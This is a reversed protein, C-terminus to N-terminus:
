PKLTIPVQLVHVPSGDKASKEYVWLCAPTSQTVTFPATVEYPALTQGESSTGSVDIIAGGDAGYVTVRFQAEFATIKGTVRLRGSVTEGPQPSDVQVEDSTAPDPNAACVSAVTSTPTAATTTGSSTATPSNTANTTASPGLTVSAPATRTAGGNDDDGCAAAALALVALAAIIFLYRKV